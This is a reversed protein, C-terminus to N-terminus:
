GNRQDWVMSMADNVEWSVALRVTESAFFYELAEHYRSLEQEVEELESALTNTAIKMCALEYANCLRGSEAVEFDRRFNYREKCEQRLQENAEQADKLEVKIAAHRQAEEQLKNAYWRTSEKAVEVQKRLGQACERQTKVDLDRQAQQDALQQETREIQKQLQCACPQVYLASMEREVGIYLTKDCRACKVEM